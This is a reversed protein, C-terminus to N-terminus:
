VVITEYDRLADGRWNSFIFSFLRHEVKNVQEHGASLPLGCDGVPRTQWGSYSWNGSACAAAMPGGGDATILLRAAGSVVARRGQAVLRFPPSQSPPPTMIPEVNVLGTTGGWIM